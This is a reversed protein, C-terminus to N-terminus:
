PKGSWIRTGQRFPLPPIALKNSRELFQKILLRLLGLSQQISDILKPRSGNAGRVKEFQIEIDSTREASIRFCKQDLKNGQELVVPLAASEV